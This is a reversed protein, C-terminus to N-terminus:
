NKPFSQGEKQEQYPWSAHSHAIKWKRNELIAVITSRLVPFSHKKGSITITPIMDCTVWAFRSDFSEFRFDIMELQAKESQSWDRELQKLMGDLGEIKEDAGTGYHFSDTSDRFLEKILSIDHTEYAKIWNNVMKKLKVETKQQIMMISEM